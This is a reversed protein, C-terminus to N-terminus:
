GEQAEYEAEHGKGSPFELHQSISWVPTVGCDPVDGLATVDIGAETDSSGLEDPHPDIAVPPPRTGRATSKCPFTPYGFRDRGDIGGGVGILRHAGEGSPFQLSQHKRLRDDVLRAKEQEVLWQCAEVDAVLGYHGM